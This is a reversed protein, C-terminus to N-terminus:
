NVDNTVNTANTDFRRYMLTKNDNVISNIKLRDVCQTYIDELPLIFKHNDLLKRTYIFNRILKVVCKQLEFDYTKDDSGYWYIYYLMEELTTQCREINKDFDIIYMSIKYDNIYQLNRTMLTNIHLIYVILDYEILEKSMDKLM